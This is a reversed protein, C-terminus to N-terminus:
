STGDRLGEILDFYGLLGIKRLLDESVRETAQVSFEVVRREDLIVVFRSEDESLAITHGSALMEDERIITTPGEEGDAKQLKSALDALECEQKDPGSKLETALKMAEEILELGSNTPIHVKRSTPSHLVTPLVREAWQGFEKLKEADSGQLMEPPPDGEPAIAAGVIRLMDLLSLNQEQDYIHKGRPREYKIHSSLGEENGALGYHSHVGKEDPKLIMESGAKGVRKAFLRFVENGKYLLRIRREGDEDM